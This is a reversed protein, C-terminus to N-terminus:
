VIWLQWILVETLWMNFCELPILVHSERSKWICVYFFFGFTWFGVFLPSSFWTLRLFLIWATWLWQRAERQRRTVRTGVVGQHNWRVTWDLYTKGRGLELWREEKIRQRGLGWAGLRWRQGMEANTNRNRYLNWRKDKQKLTSKPSHKHKPIPKPTQTQTEAHIEPQTKPKTQM